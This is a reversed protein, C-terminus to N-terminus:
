KKNIFFIDAGITHLAHHARIGDLIMMKHTEMCHVSLQELNEKALAYGLIPLVNAQIYGAQEGPILQINPIAPSKIVLPNTAVPLFLRLLRQLCGSHAGPALSEQVFLNYEHSHVLLYDFVADLHDVLQNSFVAADQPSVFHLRDTRIELDGTSINPIFVGNVFTRLIDEIDQLFSDILADLLAEETEFFRKLVPREVNLDRSIDTLTVGIFKRSTYRKAAVAMIRYRITADNEDM